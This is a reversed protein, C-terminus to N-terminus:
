IPSFSPFGTYGYGNKGSVNLRGTATIDVGNICVTGRDPKELMAISRLFVSKGSGSPGIVAICEGKCIDADIHRLVELHGFGKSLGRVTIM